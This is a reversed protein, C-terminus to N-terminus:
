LAEPMSFLARQEPADPTPRRSRRRFRCVASNPRGCLGPRSVRHKRGPDTGVRQAPFRDVLPTKGTRKAKAYAQGCRRYSPNLWPDGCPDFPPGFVLPGELPIRCLTAWDRHLAERVNGLQEAWM